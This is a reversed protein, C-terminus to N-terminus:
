HGTQNGSALVTGDVASIVYSFEKDGVTIHIDYCPIGKETVIHTHIDTVQSQTLGAQELAITQAQEKTLADSKSGCGTLLSLLVAALILSVFLRKKM